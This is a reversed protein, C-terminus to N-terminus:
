SRRHRDARYGRLRDSRVPLVHSLIHRYLPLILDVFQCGCFCPLMLINDGITNAQMIHFLALPWQDHQQMTEGFEPIGPAVLDWEQGLMAISNNSRIKTAIVFSIFRALPVIDRCKKTIDHPQNFTKPLLFSTDNSMVPTSHQGPRKGHVIRFHGFAQNYHISRMWSRHHALYARGLLQTFAPIYESELYRPQGFIHQPAIVRVLNSPHKPSRCQLLRSEWALYCGFVLFGHTFRSRYFSCYAIVALKKPVQRKRELTVFYLNVRRGQKNPSFLIDGDTNFEGKTEFSPYIIDLDFTDRVTTM